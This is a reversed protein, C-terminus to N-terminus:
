PSKCLFVNVAREIQTFKVSPYMKEADISMITHKTSDIPLKELDEKLHTAQVITKRSYNVQNKDLIAKIGRQGAHPFGATFNKAPVVLRSPYRGNEDKEKHDKVLLKVTPVRHDLLTSKIYKKEQDNFLDYNADLFTEAKMYKEKLTSLTTLEADEELHKKVREIYEPAQLVVYSNTKDTPVVVVEDRQHLDYLISEITKTVSNRKRNDKKMM